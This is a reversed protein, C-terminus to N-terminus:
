GSRAGNRALRTLWETAFAVISMAVVGVIFNIVLRLTEDPDFRDEWWEDLGFWEIWHPVNWEALLLQGYIFIIVALFFAAAPVTWYWRVNGLIILYLITYLPIGVHFGLTWVSVLLAATSLILLVWRRAVVAPSDETELFGTDMIQGGEGSSTRFLKVFRWVVALLVPLTYTPVTWLPGAFLFWVFWWSLALFVVALAIPLRQRILRYQPAAFVVEIIEGMRWIWFPAGIGISIWPVIQAGLGWDRSDLMMYVFFIGVGVLLIVEGIVEVALLRALPSKQTEAASTM